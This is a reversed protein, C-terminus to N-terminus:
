TSLINRLEQFTLASRKNFFEEFNEFTLDIDQPIYHKKMFEKRDEINPYTEELWIKFDKNM